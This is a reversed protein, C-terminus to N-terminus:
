AGLPINQPQKQTNMLPIHPDYSATVHSDPCLLPIYVYHKWPTGLAFRYTTHLYGALHGTKTSNYGDQGPATMSSQGGSAKVGMNQFYPLM